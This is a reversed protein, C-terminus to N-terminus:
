PHAFSAIVGCFAGLVLGTVGVGGILGELVRQLALVDLGVPRTEGPETVHRLLLPLGGLPLPRVRDLVEDLQFAREAVVKGVLQVRVDFAVLLLPRRHRHQDRRLHDVRHVLGVQPGVGNPAVHGRRQRVPVLLERRVRHGSAIGQVFRVHPGDFPECVPVRGLHQRLQDGRARLVAPVAGAHIEDAVVRGLYQLVLELHLLVLAPVRHEVVQAPGRAHAVHDDRAAVHGVDRDLPELLPQEAQEVDLVHTLNPDRRLPEHADRLV